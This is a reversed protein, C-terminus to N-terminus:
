RKAEKIPPLSQIVACSCLMSRWRVYWIMTRLWCFLRKETLILPRLRRQNSQKPKTSGRYFCKSLRAKRWSARFKSLVVVKNLSVTFLPYDLGPEKGQNKPRSFRNSYELCQKKIWEAAPIVYPCNSMFVPFLTQAIKQILRELRFMAQKSLSNEETSCRMALTSRWTLFSRSSRAVIPWYM